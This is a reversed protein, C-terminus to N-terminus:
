RRFKMLELLYYFTLNTICYMWRQIVLPQGTLSTLASCVEKQLRIIKKLVGLKFPKILDKLETETLELFCQGDIENEAPIVLFITLLPAIVVFFM